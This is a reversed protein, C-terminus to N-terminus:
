LTPMPVAMHQEAPQEQSPKNDYTDAPTASELGPEVQVDVKVKDKPIGKVDVHVKLKLFIFEGLEDGAGQLVGSEPVQSTNNAVAKEVQSSV